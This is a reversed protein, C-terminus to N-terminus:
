TNENRSNIIISVKQNSTKMMNQHFQNWIEDYHLNTTSIWNYVNKSHAFGMMFIGLDASICKFIESSFTCINRFYIMINHINYLGYKVITCYVICVKINFKLITIVESIKKTIGIFDKYNYLNYNRIIYYINKM